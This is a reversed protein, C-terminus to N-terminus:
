VGEEWTEGIESANVFYFFYPFFSSVHLRPCSYHEPNTSHIDFSEPRLKVM